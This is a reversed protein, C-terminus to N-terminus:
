AAQDGRRTLSGILSSHNRLIDHSCHRKSSESNHMCRIPTRNKEVYKRCEKSNLEADELNVRTTFFNDLNRLFPFFVTM